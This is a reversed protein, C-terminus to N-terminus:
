HAMNLIDRNRFVLLPLLQPQPNNLRQIINRLLNPTILHTGGLYRM